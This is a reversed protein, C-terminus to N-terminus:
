KYLEERKSPDLETSCRAILEDCEASFTFDEDRTSSFNQLLGATTANEAGNALICMGMNGDAFSQYFSNQDM